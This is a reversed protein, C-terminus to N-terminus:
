NRKTDKQDEKQKSIHFTQLLQIQISSLLLLRRTRFITYIYISERVHILQQKKEHRTSKTVEHASSETVQQISSGPLVVNDFFAHKLAEASNIRRDPDYALMLNILEVCKESVNPILHRIGSGEKPPFNYKMSSVRPGLMHRLIKQSPTGVINHIRHLQDLEDAGPFLPARSVIEFLVCGAGWIDM